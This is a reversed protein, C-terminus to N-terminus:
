FGINGCAANPVPNSFQGGGGGALLFANYTYEIAYAYEPHIDVTIKSEIKKKHRGRVTRKDERAEDGEVCM